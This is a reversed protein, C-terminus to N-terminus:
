ETIIMKKSLSAGNAKINYFYVGKSFDAANLHLTHMGAATMGLKNELVVRGTVDYVTFLVDSSTALEYAVDATGNFPNPINQSLSVGYKALENIGTPVFHVSLDWIYGLQTYPYMIGNLVTSPAAWAGYREKKGLAGGALSAPTTTPKYTSDYFMDKATVNEQFLLGLYSNMGAPNATGFDYYSEGTTYTAKPIYTYQVGVVDGAPVNMGGPVVVPIYPFNVNGVSVTDALTFIHRVVVKNPGKAFSHNGKLISVNDKPCDWHEGKASYQLGKFTATDSKAGYNLEIMLTDGCTAGATVVNYYGAVWVTDVTYPQFSNIGMPALFNASNPDLVGGAKMTGVFTAVGASYTAVTSDVFIPDVYQTFNSSGGNTYTAVTPSLRQYKTATVANRNAINKAHEALRIATYATLKANVTHPVPPAPVQQQALMSGVLTASVFLTYIKKM